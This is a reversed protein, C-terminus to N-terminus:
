VHARGIEKEFQRIAPTRRSRMIVLDSKRRLLCLFIPKQWPLEKASTVIEDVNMIECREELFLFVRQVGRILFMATNM